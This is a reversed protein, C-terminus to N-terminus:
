ETTTEEAATEKSLAKELKRRVAQLPAFDKTQKAYELAKKMSNETVEMEHPYRPQVNYRTLTDCARELESFGTEYETCL